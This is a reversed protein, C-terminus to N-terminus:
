PVFRKKRIHSMCVMQQFCDAVEALGMSECLFIVSFVDKQVYLGGFEVSTKLLKSGSRIDMGVARAAEDVDAGPAKCTDSVASICSVPQALFSSAALKPLETSCVTTQPIQTYFNKERLM